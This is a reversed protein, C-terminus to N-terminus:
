LVILLDLELRSENRGLLRKLRLFRSLDEFWDLSIELSLSFAIKWFVGLRLLLCEYFFM